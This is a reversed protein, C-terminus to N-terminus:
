WGTIDDPFTVTFSAKGEADSRLTPKWFAYDRFNKRLSSGPTNETPLAPTMGPIKTSLLQSKTIGKKTSILIVGSSARSGYLAVANDSNLIEIGTIADESVDEMRGIKGDIVVIPMDDSKISNAGRIKIKISDAAGPSGNMRMIQMGASRGQLTSVSGTLSMKRTSGYGVVIVESLQQVDAALQWNISSRGNVAEQDTAYGIFSFILVSNEACQISYYGDINTVTGVTTGKVMVNAGPIPLGQEDLVVGSISHNFNPYYTIDSESYYLERISQMEKRRVQDVYNTTVAWQRVTKMVERSFSDPKNLGNERLNYYNLGYPKIFVSDARSYQDNNFIFVVQYHGPRLTVNSQFQGPLITFDDPDDLNIIFTARLKETTSIPADIKLRGGKAAVYSYDPYKHFVLEETADLSKWYQEIRKQTQVQDKFRPNIKEESLWSRFYNQITADHMKVLGEKFEYRYFPEYTVRVDYDNRVVFKMEQPIFPGVLQTQKGYYNGRNNDLLHFQDGQKFYSLGQTSTRDVLLFYRSLNKKEEITLEDPRDVMWSHHPLANADISFILKEGRRIEINTITILKNFIRLAIRHKGPYTNFSYPEISQVHSAYVPVDDVYVVHVPLVKGHDVVFPAFQAIGDEAPLRFEFRGSDPFLFHYYALSDLGLTKHWYQWELLQSTAGPLESTNFENFIKRGKPVKYFDPVDDSNNEKFKKTIAYATLDANEVPKGFADQVSITFNAQQGPYIMNEHSLSVNLQKTNFPIDYEETESKGAWIFQVSLAYHDKPNSSLKIDLQKTEGNRILKQNKFLFYRVDLNRPNELSIFLSDATRFAIANLQSGFNGVSFSRNENNFHIEIKDIFSNIVEQCPVSINKQYSIGLSNFVRISASDDSITIGKIWQIRMSDKEIKLELPFPKDNYRLEINKVHREKDTNIFAVEVEYLFQLSPFISDPVSIRTEGIPELKVKHFWLTDSVYIKNQFYQNISKPRIIIEANVDFLPLDNSDTGKLYLIPSLKESKTEARLSFTNQKLEYAEYKFSGSQLLQRKTDFLVSYQQDLKLKLSDHLVFEYPYSGPHSPSIKGLKIRTNSYSYSNLLIDVEKKVPKGKPTTIFAKVKVTDGPKYIPKNFAVYGNFDKPEFLRKVRYYVNPPDVHGYKILSRTNNKIYYFPAVILQHIPFPSLIKRGVRPFFTNNYKRNVEFFSDHGNHSVKLLGKRNSKTLQYSKTKIRYAIGQKGISVVADTVERGLSDSFVLIMDRHNNLIHLDLNNVSELECKMQESETKVFLYHGVHLKKEYLSDSPFFDVLTHLLSNSITPKFDKYLQEAEANNIKYIFTYYSSRRSNVLDQSFVISCLLVLSLSLYIKLM